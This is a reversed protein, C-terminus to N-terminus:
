EFHGNDNNQHAMRNAKSLGAAKVISMALVQIGGHAETSATERSTISARARAVGGAGQSAAKTVSM